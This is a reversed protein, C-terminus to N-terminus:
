PKGREVIDENKKEIQAELNKWFRGGHLFEHVSEITEPGFARALGEPTDASGHDVRDYMYRRGRIWSVYDPRNWCLEFSFHGWGGLCLSEPFYKKLMTLLESDINRLFNRVWEFIEESLYLTNPYQETARKKRAEERERTQKEEREERVWREEEINVQMEELKKLDGKIKDLVGTPIITSLKKTM